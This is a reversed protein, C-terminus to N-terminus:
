EAGGAPEKLPLAFHPRGHPTSAFAGKPCIRHRHDCYAASRERADRDRPAAHGRRSREVRTRERDATSAVQLSEHSRSWKQEPAPSTSLNALLFSPKRCLPTRRGSVPGALPGRGALNSLRGADDGVQWFLSCSEDIEELFCASTSTADPILRTCAGAFSRSSRTAPSDWAGLTRRGNATL